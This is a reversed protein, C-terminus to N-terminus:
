VGILKAFYAESVATSGSSAEIVPKGPRIWGNSASRRRRTATARALDRATVASARTGPGAKAPAPPELAGQM